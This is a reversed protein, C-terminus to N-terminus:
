KRRDLKKIDFTKPMNFSGQFKNGWKDVGIEFHIGKISLYIEQKETKTKKTLFQVQFDTPIVSLGGMYSSLKLNEILYAIQNNRLFYDGQKDTFVIDKIEDLLFISDLLTNKPFRQENGVLVNWFWHGRPTYDLEINRKVSLINGNKSDLQYIDVIQRNIFKDFPVVVEHVETYFQKLSDSYFCSVVYIKDASIGQKVFVNKIEGTDLLDLKSGTLLVQPIGLSDEIYRKNKVRDFVVQTTTTFSLEPINIKYSTVINNIRRDSIDSATTTYQAEKINYYFYEFRFYKNFREGGIRSIMFSDSKFIEAKELDNYFKIRGQGFAFTPLLLLISIISKYIM